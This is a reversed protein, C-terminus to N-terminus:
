RIPQRTNDNSKTISPRNKSALIPRRFLISVLAKAHFPIFPWMYPTNYSRTVSLAILWVTTGIVLGPIKFVAVLILLAMRVLRNALGLEYSPTAFMGVAAVAMYLIVENIFLGTKVAIDGVLIAAVLGMAVTLPSPTHVAAMRMLDLGLEVTLFQFLMPLKGEKQPGLFELGQPKLEPNNVLLFWLPLLFLSAFIGLFRVWRLYSGVFPTQRYEEVHQVLHFFTTPLIMVSPSTDAFIIVHGELMHSCVVDPRESYRVSPYPNWGKGIIAEELQKDGLPIGDIKVKGIKDRLSEVLKMDAIDNIYGICVHTKTRDGVTMLELKLRPDRIRRRVLTVNTMLTEVFGDRSGRVVRELDPEEISRVPFNKADIVLATRENEIFMVTSGILAFDVAKDFDDEPQVQIHAVYKTLFSGLTDPVLQERSLLSLRMIIDTLVTDKAFGNAYFFAARKTGFEMERFVLDFSVTLGAKEELARKVDELNDPIDKTEKLGLEEDTMLDRADIKDGGTRSRGERREKGASTDKLDTGM